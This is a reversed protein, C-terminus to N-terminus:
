LRKAKKLKLRSKKLRRGVEELSITPEDKRREIVALDHFDEFAKDPEKASEHVFAELKSTAKPERDASGL